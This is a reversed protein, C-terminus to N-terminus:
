RVCRPPPVTTASAAPLCQAHLTPKYARFPRRRDTSGATRTPGPRTRQRSRGTRRGRSLISRLRSHYLQQTSWHRQTWHQDERRTPAHCTCARRRGSWEGAPRSGTGQRPRMRAGHAPWHPRAGAQPRRNARHRREGQTGARGGDAPSPLPVRASLSFRRVYRHAHVHPHRWHCRNTGRTALVHALVPAHLLPQRRGRMGQQYLHCPHLCYHKLLRRPYCRTPLPLALM